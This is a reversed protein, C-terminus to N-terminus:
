FVMGKTQKGKEEELKKVNINRWIIISLVCLPMTAVGTIAMLRMTHAYAGVIAERELSGDAYSQQITIDGFIITANAKAAEPLRQALQVPMVNNWLGGAIAYGIGAGVGGFLGSLASTVALYQHTVPAMVAVQDVTSFVGAGFGVLIQTFALLGVNTDESRFPIILATGLLMIPAGAMATWKVNGTRAVFWGVFPAIVSSTLSYANLVYNANSISLRNVVQLYSGFYANWSFTSLFMIANLLCSGIITPEKLYKFPLFQVPAVKAEWFYFIPILVVGLVPLAIIYPTKWSKPAYAVLSYPLLLCSICACLLLIGVIDFEVFYYKVSQLFTRDSRKRTIVGQKTASRFMYVMTAMAPISCAAIIIAFAGFAWRFNLNEYFGTAIEPSAFTAVIRPSMNMGYIFARNTLTTMDALMVGIVYMVGIHGVWYLIHAGIYMQVTTCTAKMIMGVICVTMMFAFGEVRGWVDIAKALPLPACAGIISALVSGINLLGHAGFSSTIYPNLASDVYNMIMDVFSILYLMLFMSILTKKTWVSTIARVREVGEQYEGESEFDSGESRVHAETNPIATNKEEDSSRGDQPSQVMIPNM